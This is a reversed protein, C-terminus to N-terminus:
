KNVLTVIKAEQRQIEEQLSVREKMYTKNDEEAVRKSREMEWEKDEAKKVQESKAVSEEKLLKIKELLKDVNKEFERNSKELDKIQAEMNRM